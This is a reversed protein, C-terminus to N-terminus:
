PEESSPPDVPPNNGSAPCIDVESLATQSCYECVSGGTLLSATYHGCLRVYCNGLECYNQPPRDADLKAM